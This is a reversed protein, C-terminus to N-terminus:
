TTQAILSRVFFNELTFFYVQAPLLYKDLCHNVYNRCVARRKKVFSPIKLEIVPPNSFLYSLKPQVIVRTGCSPCSQRRNRGSERQRRQGSRDFLLSMVTESVQFYLNM